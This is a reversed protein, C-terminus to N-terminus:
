DKEFKLDHMYDKSALEINWDNSDLYYKAIKDNKDDGELVHSQFYLLKM